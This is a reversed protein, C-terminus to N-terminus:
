LDAWSQSRPAAFVTVDPFRELLAGTGFWHDGRGHTVFIHKLTKGSSEIWSIVRATQEIPVPPDVLV